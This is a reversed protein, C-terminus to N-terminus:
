QLSTFLYRKSESDYGHLELMESVRIGKKVRYDEKIFVILNIAEAIAEPVPKQEPDQMIMQEIRMPTRDASNAHLTGFGGSHGTNWAGILTSAEKGRVEGIVIRGSDERLASRLLRPMQVHPTGQMELRNDAKCQLERTDEILVFRDHPTLRVALELLMNVFTSKGTNTKGSVMINKRALIAEHLLESQRPTIIEDLVYQEIPFVDSAKKRINLTPRQVVPPIMGNIRSGDNPLEGELIPNEENLPKNLYRAITRLVAEVTAPAFVTTGRQWGPFGLRKFRVSGDSNIIIGNVRKDVLADGIEPGLESTIMNVWRDRTVLRSERLGATEETPKLMANM